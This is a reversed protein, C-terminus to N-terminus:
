YFTRSGQHHKFVYIRFLFLFNDRYYPSDPVPSLVEEAAGLKSLLRGSPYM